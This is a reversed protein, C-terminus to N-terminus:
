HSTLKRTKILISLIVGIIIIWLIMDAVLNLINVRWPFYQPAIILRILWAFPYGYHYAGVLLPPTNSILGTLLTVIVGGAIALLLIRVNM